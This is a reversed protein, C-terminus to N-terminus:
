REFTLNHKVRQITFLWRGGIKRLDSEYRGMMTLALTGRLLSSGLTWGVDSQIEANSEVAVFQATITAKDGDVNVIHDSTLYHFGRGPPRSGSEFLARINDRGVVGPGRQTFDGTGPRSYLRFEGDPAFLEAIAKGDRDELARIYRGLLEIIETRDSMAIAEKPPKTETSSMAM